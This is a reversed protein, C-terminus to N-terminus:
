ARTVRGVRAAERMFEREKDSRGADPQRETLEVEVWDVMDTWRAPARNHRVAHHVRDRRWASADASRNDGGPYTHGSSSHGVSSTRGLSGHGHSSRTYSDVSARYNDWSERAEYSARQGESRVYGIEARGETYSARPSRAARVEYPPNYTERSENRRHGTGVGVVHEEKAQDKEWGDDIWSHLRMGPDRKRGRKLRLGLLSAIARARAVLRRATSAESSRSSTSDHRRSLPSLSSPARNM